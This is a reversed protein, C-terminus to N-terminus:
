CRACRTATPPSSCTSGPSCSGSQGIAPLNWAHYVVGDAGAMLALYVMARNEAASPARDDPPPTPSLENLWRAGSSQVIAWVPKLGDTAERAANVAEAVASLPKHPVPDSWALVVDALQGHRDPVLLETVTAGYTILRATMGRANRLTYRLVHEGGRTVGFSDQDIRTDSM